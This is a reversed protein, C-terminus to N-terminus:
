HIIVSMEKDGRNQARSCSEVYQNEDFIKRLVGDLLPWGRPTLHLFDETTALLGREVLTALAPSNLISEVAVGGTKRWVSIQIGNKLRLGMMLMEEARRRDDTRVNQHWPPVTSSKETETMYKEPMKYASTAYHQGDLGWFRGHAGAGIGLYDGYQWIHKNHFCPEGLMCFNSIEYNEYNQSCLIRQTEEFFPSQADGDLPQWRGKRVDAYFATNPEITLQYASIHSLGMETAEKLTYRWEELTQGPLGYIFDANVRPVAQQAMDVAKRAEEPGHLRGLFQLHDSVLSQVGVSIRNVGADAFAKFKAAESSAPNAELTVELGKGLGFLRDAAELVRGVVAPPMLSPTGGGFFVSRVPRPGVLRQQAILDNLLAQAYREADRAPDVHSNFDCYPCKKACWPWHVYLVLPAASRATM